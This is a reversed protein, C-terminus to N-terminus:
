NIFFGIPPTPLHCAFKNLPEPFYVEDIKLTNDIEPPTQLKGKWVTWPTRLVLISFHNAMGKQLPGRKTLGTLGLPFWGQINMLLASASTGISQGGSAFLWSMPFSGSVPFPQLCSSFPVVSSSIPSLCWWSLPCLNSCVAPSLSPCPLRTHQLGHPWLSESMVSRSFLLLVGKRM